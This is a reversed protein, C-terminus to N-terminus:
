RILAITGTKRQKSGEPITYTCTYVYVDQKCPRGQHTGDWPNDIRDTHYVIDGRRDYIWMEFNSINYCVPGFRNNTELNPTFINPFNILHGFIPITLYATDQCFANYAIIGVVINGASPSATYRFTPATEDQTNGDILWWRGTNNNSRDHATLTLQSSTLSAPSVELDAVVPQPPDLRLTTDIPCAPDDPYCMTLRCLTHASLHLRLTSDPAILPLPALSDTHWVMLSGSSTLFTTGDPQQMEPPALWLKQDSFLYPDDPDCNGILSDLKEPLPRIHLTLLCLSDCGEPTSLLRQYTGETAFVTDAFPYTDGHCITVEEAYEPPPQIHLTLHCLSDCGGLTSIIGQYTGETALLTDAFPYTSGQCITVEESYEPLPFQALTLQYINCSDNVFFTGPQTFTTNLFTYSGGVCFTDALSITDHHVTVTYQVSDRCQGGALTAVLEITHTGDPLNIELNTATSTTGNPLRWLYDECPENTPQTHAEDMAIHSHNHLFFRGCEQRPEAVFDAVPYRSGMRCYLTFGCSNGNLQYTAHCAYNGPTNLTISDATGLTTQPSDINYWRYGFGKPAYFTNVTANGCQASRLRKRTGELTFYGFGFHAGGICDYNAIVVKIKQGQFSSIDIGIARWDCWVIGNTTHWGEELGAVFNGYYCSGLSIDNTDYIGLTFKPQATAPHNPNQEVIAYRLLLLDYIATDVTLNYAVSEAKAGNHLDGLRMSCCAGPPVVSLQTNTYPAKQTLDFNVRYRFDVDEKIHPYYRGSAWRNTFANGIGCVVNSDMLNAYKIPNNQYEPCFTHFSMRESESWGSACRACLLVDYPQNPNLNSLNVITDTTLISTGTGSAFGQPGYEVRYHSTDVIKHWVVSASNSTTNQISLGEPTACLTQQPVFSIHCRTRNYQFPRISNTDFTNISEMVVHKDEYGIGIPLEFMINAEINIQIESTAEFLAVQLKYPRLRSHFEIILIRHGVQGITCYGYVNYDFNIFPYGYGNKQLLITPPLTSHTPFFYDDGAVGWDYICGFHIERNHAISFTRYYHGFFYFQFGIDIQNTTYSYNSGYYPLDHWEASDTPILQGVTDAYCVYGNVLTQGVAQGLAM